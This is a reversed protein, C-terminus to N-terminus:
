SEGGIEHTHELVDAADLLDDILDDDMAWGGNNCLCTNRSASKDRPRNARHRRTRITAAKVRERWHESEIKKREVARRQEKVDMLAKCEPCYYCSFTKIKDVNPEYQRQCTVRYCNRVM